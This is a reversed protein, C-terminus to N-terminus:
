AFTTMVFFDYIFHAIIPGYSVYQKYTDEGWLEKFRFIFGVWTFVVVGSYIAFIYNAITSLGLAGWAYWHSFAWLSRSILIALILSNTEGFGYEYFSNALSKMSILCLLEEGIGVLILFVVTFASVNISLKQFYSALWVIHPSIILKTQMGIMSLIIAMAPQLFNYLLYGFLGGIIISYLIYKVSPVDLGFAKSINEGITGALLLAVILPYTYFIVTSVEEGAKYSFYLFLNMILFPAMGVLLLWNKTGRIEPFIM